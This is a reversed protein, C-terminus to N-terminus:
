LPAASSSLVSTRRVGTSTSRWPAPHLRHAAGVIASPRAEQGAVHCGEEGLVRNVGLRMIPGLNGLLVRSRPEGAMDRAETGGPRPGCAAPLWEPLGNGDM